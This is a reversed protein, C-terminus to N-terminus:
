YKFGTHSGDPNQELGYVDPSLFSVEMPALKNRPAGPPLETPLLDVRPPIPPTISVVASPPSDGSLNFAMVRYDFQQGGWVFDDTYTLVLGLEAVVDWGTEFDFSGHPQREVKFGDTDAFDHVWSFETTGFDVLAVAPTTPAAPPPM